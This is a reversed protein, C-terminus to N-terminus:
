DPTVRMDELIRKRARYIRTEVAKETIGLIEACERQSHEEIVHLVFPAKLKVPLSDVLALVHATTESRLLDEDATPRPDPIREEPSPGGSGDDRAPSFLTFVKRRWAKRAHDRCLNATISYIWTAVKARPLYRAAHRHVRVFTEAAIEEADSENRVWRYAFRFVKDKHREMLERLARENGEAIAPILPRDPDEPVASSM